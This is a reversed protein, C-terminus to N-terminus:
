ETQSFISQKTQKPMNGSLKEHVVQEQATLFLSYDKRSVKETDESTIIGWTLGQYNRKWM